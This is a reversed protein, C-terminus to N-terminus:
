FSRPLTITEEEQLIHATWWSRADEETWPLDLPCARLQRLLEGASSVRQDPDKALCALLIEDLADPVPYGATRSPPYPDQTLHARLVDPVSEGEFVCRGTLLWYGVCALSYIDGRPDAPDGGLLIEPAIYGPTGAITATSGSLDAEGLYSGKVLGFDLVKVFDFEPGLRCTYLNAPKVDRHVLGQEHADLLSLCAQELLFIARAAPVPGFRKVLSDLSVGDLLEMVYYFEGTDTVGFDYLVISHPSRLLATARAEREFRRRLEELHLGGDEALADPRILKIAAPRSLFRHRARWVEGMGGAGLRETLEYTGMRRAEGVDRGLGYVIRTALFAVAASVYNPLFLPVLVGIPQATSGYFTVSLSYAIIGTSATTFTALLAKGPTSPVLLPFILIWVCIWSVGFIQVEGGGFLGWFEVMSIGFGGVVEFLLGMDLLTAPHFRRSFSAALILLAALVSLGVSMSEVPFTDRSRFGPVTVCLIGYVLGFGVGYILAAWALRRSAGALLDPPITSGSRGGSPGPEKSQRIFATPSAM